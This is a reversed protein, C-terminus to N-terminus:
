CRIVVCDAGSEMVLCLVVVFFGSCWMMVSTLMSSSVGSVVEAELVTMVRLTLLSEQWFTVPKPAAAIPSRIRGMVSSWRM